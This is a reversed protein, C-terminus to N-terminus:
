GDPPAPVSLAGAAALAQLGLHTLAIDPLADATRAFGGDGSQCALVASTADALHRVPLRLLACARLGAHLVALPAYLSNPTATFGFPPRQLADVFGSVEAAFMHIGCADLIALATWTDPLNPADGWGGGHCLALVREAVADAGRVTALARQLRPGVAVNPDVLVAAADLARVHAVAAHEAGEGLRALALARHYLDDQGACPFGRLFAVVDDRHPVEVALLTLAAVAHWTDHLTPEDVGLWRYFCFGGNPSQRGFLYRKAREAAASARTCLAPPPPVPQGASPSDIATM